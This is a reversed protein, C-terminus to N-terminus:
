PSTERVSDQNERVRKARPRGSPRGQPHAGFALKARERAEQMRGTNALVRAEGLREEFWVVMSDIWTAVDESPKPLNPALERCRTIRAQAQSM